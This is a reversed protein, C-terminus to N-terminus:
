VLLSPHIDHRINEFRADAWTQARGSIKKFECDRFFAKEFISADVNSDSFSTNIFMARTFDCNTLKLNSLVGDSADVRLFSSNSFDCKEFQFSGLDTKVWFSEKFSSGQTHFNKLILGDFRAEQLDCDIFELYEAKADSWESQFGKCRLFSCRSFQSRSLKAKSFDCDVFEVNKFASNILWGSCFTLNMVRRNELDLRKGIDRQHFWKLHSDLMSVLESSQLPILEPM